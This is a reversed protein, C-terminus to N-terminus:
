WGFTRALANLVPASVPSGQPARVTQFVDFVVLGILCMLLTCCVLGVVQWVSLPEARVGVEVDEGPEGLGETTEVSGSSADTLSSDDMIVSGFQSSDGSEDTLIVQSASEDDVIDAGLEFVEEGLSEGLLDGGTAGPDGAALSRDLDIGSAVLEPGELSLGSDIANSVGAISPGSLELLSGDVLSGGVASLDVALTGSGGGAAPPKGDVAKTLSPASAAVISDLVLDDVDFTGSPAPGAADGGRVVTHSATPAAPEDDGAFISDTDDDEDALLFEGGGAIGSGLAPASLELDLSLGDGASSAGSGRDNALREIEEVKFKVTGGSRMPFLEKRDVLRNVEDISVGLRRAAEELSLFKGAM